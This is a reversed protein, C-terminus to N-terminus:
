GVTYSGRALLTAGDATTISRGEPMLYLHDATLAAEGDLSGGTTTDILSGTGTCRATGSRLLV